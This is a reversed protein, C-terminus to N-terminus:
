KKDIILLTETGGEFGGRENFNKAGVELGHKVGLPVINVHLYEALIVGRRSLEKEAIQGWPSIDNREGKRDIGWVRAESEQAEKLFVGMIIEMLFKHIVEQRERTVTVREKIFPLCGPTPIVLDSNRVM